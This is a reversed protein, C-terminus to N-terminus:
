FCALLVGLEFQQLQDTLRAVEIVQSKVDPKRQFFAEPVEGHWVVERGARCSEM